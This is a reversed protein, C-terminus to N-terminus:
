SPSFYEKTLLGPTVLRQFSDLWTCPYMPKSMCSGREPNVMTKEPLSLFLTISAPRLKDRLADVYFLWSLDKNLSVPKYYWVTLVNDHGKAAQSAIM